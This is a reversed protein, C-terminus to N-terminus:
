CTKKRKEKRDDARFTWELSRYKSLFAEAARSESDTLRGKEAPGLVSALGTLLAKGADEMSIDGIENRLCTLGDEPRMVGNKLNKVPDSLYKSMEHCNFGVLFSGSSNVVGNSTLQGSGSIKKGNAYVSYRAPEICPDDIGLARLASVVGSLVKQYVERPGPPINSRDERFIVNYIIQDPDCYGAGGGLTRRIVPVGAHTCADVLIDDRVFQHYGVYVAPRKPRWFLITDTGDKACNDMVAEFAAPGYYPDVPGLDLYRWKM